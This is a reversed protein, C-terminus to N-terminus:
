RPHRLVLVSRGQVPIKDGTKYVKDSMGTPTATDLAVLLDWDAAFDFEPIHFDLRDHYANFCLLFSDDVVREGRQNPSPIGNGNLYVALSQGFGSDWDQPTMLEGAPTLWAIDSLVEDGERIPRGEFFRRRRFVPHRKRMAIVNRTFELLDANTDVLSWDMWSLESDQCYVNNNGQQTRGMEDGHALMPTGQSLMLRRWSIAARGRGYNWFTRTM